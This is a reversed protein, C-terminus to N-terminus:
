QTLPCPTCAVLPQRSVRGEAGAGTGVGAPRSGTCHDDPGPATLGTPRTGWVPPPPPPSRHTTSIRNPWSSHHPWTHVVHSPQARCWRPLERALAIMYARPENGPETGDEEGGWGGAGGGGWVAQGRQQGLLAGQAGGQQVVRVERRCERGTRVQLYLPPPLPRRSLHTHTGQPPTSNIRIGFM